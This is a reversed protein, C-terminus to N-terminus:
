AFSRAPGTRGGRGRNSFSPEGACARAVCVIPKIVPVTARRRGSPLRAAEVITHM